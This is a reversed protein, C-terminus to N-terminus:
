EIAGGGAHHHRPRWRQFRLRARQGVEANCRVSPETGGGRQDVGNRWSHLLSGSSPDVPLRLGRERAAADLKSWLVGPEAWMTRATQDFRGLRNLRSFDVIVGAGIAGGAMSSGSGRPVLPTKTAAAWKVLAAVDHDDAPVAVASPMARGIGAAESYVARALEDERYIGRFGSPM